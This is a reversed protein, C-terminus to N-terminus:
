ERYPERVLIEVVYEVDQQEGEGAVAFATVHMQAKDNERQSIAPIMGMGKIAVKMSAMLAKCLQQRVAAKDPFDAVM